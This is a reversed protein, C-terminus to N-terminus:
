EFYHWARPAGWIFAGYPIRTYEDDGCQRATCIQCAWVRLRRNYRDNPCEDQLCGDERFGHGAHGETVIDRGEIRMVCTVDYRGAKLVTRWYESLRSFRTFTIRLGTDRGWADFVRVTNKMTIGREAANGGGKM